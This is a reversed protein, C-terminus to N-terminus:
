LFASKKRSFNSFHNNKLNYFLTKNIYVDMNPYVKLHQKKTKMYVFLFVTSLMKLISFINKLKKHSKMVMVKLFEFSPRNLM